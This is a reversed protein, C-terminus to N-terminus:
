ISQPPTRGRGQSLAPSLTIREKLYAQLKEETAFEPTTDPVGLFFVVLAPRENEADARSAYFRLETRPFTAFHGRPTRLDTVDTSPTAPFTQRKGQTFPDHGTVAFWPYMTRQTLLRIVVLTEEESAGRLVGWALAVGPATFVDVKGHVERPPEPASPPVAACAALTLGVLFLLLRIM